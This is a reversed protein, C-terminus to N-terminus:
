RNYLVLAQNDNSVEIIILFFNQQKVCFIPFCKYLNISIFIKKLFFFSVKGIKTMKKRQFKFLFQSVICIPFFKMCIIFIWSRM